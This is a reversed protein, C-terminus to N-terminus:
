KQEGHRIMSRVTKSLDSYLYSKGESINQLLVWYYRIRLLLLDPICVINSVQCIYVSMYLYLKAPGRLAIPLAGPEYTLPGPNSVRDPLM